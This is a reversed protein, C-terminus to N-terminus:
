PNTNWVFFQPVCVLRLCLYIHWVIFNNHRWVISFLCPCVKKATSTCYPYYSVIVLPRKYHIWVVLSNCGIHPHAYDPLSDIHLFSDIMWSWIPYGDVVIHLMWIHLFRVLFGHFALQSTPSVGWGSQWTIFIFRFAFFDNKGVTFFIPIQFLLKKPPNERERLNQRQNHLFFHM